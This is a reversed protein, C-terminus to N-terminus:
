NNSLLNLLQVLIYIYQDYTFTIYKIPLGYKHSISIFISNLGVGHNTAELVSFLHDLDVSKVSYFSVIAHQRHVVLSCM